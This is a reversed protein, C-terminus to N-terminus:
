CPYTEVELEFEVEDDLPFMPRPCVSHGLYRLNASTSGPADVDLYLGASEKFMHPECHPSKVVVANFQAPDQGHALFFSRDFLNVPQSSVVVTYTGIQLVATLGSRWPLQFSESHFNGDSLQRVTAEVELPTFRGPDVTGGLTLRLTAGVGAEIARQVAPADVIPLLLTGPYRNEMLARLLINSDGSAGSSTADAADVLVVPSTSEEETHFRVTQKVAESVTILPVQMRERHVWFLEAMERAYQTALDQDGDLTVVVNTRLEPVDTFPNGILMGAALGADSDEIQRALRLCEGFLGTETVLEDGRVLAPIKVRTMVPQLEEHILRLLLKAARVGTDYQDIHPYTHYPVIANSHALMRDTLIGHLDMSTVFPINAGLLKRAHELIFGEPDMESETAMAGHMCFYIGDIPQDKLQDLSHILRESLADWDDAAFIGGSSNSRASITPVLVVESDAEFVSLAGGIEHVSGRDAAIWPEGHQILFDDLHSKGPNFSSIEQMLQFLAIRPM